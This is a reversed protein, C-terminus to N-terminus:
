NEHYSRQLFQLLDNGLVHRSDPAKKEVFLRKIQIMKPMNIFRSSIIGPERIRHKGTESDKVFDCSTTLREIKILPNQQSIKPPPPCGM